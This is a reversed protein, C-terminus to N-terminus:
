SEEKGPNIQLKIARAASAGLIKVIRADILEELAREQEETFVQTPEAKIRGRGYLAEACASINWRRASNPLPGACWHEGEILLKRQDSYRKLSRVCIGLAVAAQGTPLWREENQRM